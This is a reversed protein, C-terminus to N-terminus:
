DKKEFIQLIRIQKLPGYTCAVMGIRKANFFWSIPYVFTHLIAIKKVVRWIEQGEKKYLKDYPPDWYGFNFENDKFPLQKWDYGTNIDIALYEEPINDQKGFVIDIKGFHEEIRKLTGGSGWHKTMPRALAWFDFKIENM